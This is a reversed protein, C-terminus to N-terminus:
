SLSDSNLCDQWHAKWRRAEALCERAYRMSQAALAPCGDRRHRAASALWDRAQVRATVVSILWHLTLKRIM